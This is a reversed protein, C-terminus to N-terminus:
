PEIAAPERPEEAPRREEIPTAMVEALWGGSEPSHSNLDVVTLFSDPAELKGPENCNVVVIKERLNPSLGNLWRATQTGSAYFIAFPHKAIMTAAQSLNKPSLEMLRAKGQHRSRFHSFFGRDASLVLVEADEDLKPWRATKGKVGERFNKRMVERALTKLREKSELARKPAFGFPKISAKAALVRKVTEDLREMSIRGSKVAEVMAEFARKQNKPSGALLLLDNGALFARITREGIDDSIAGGSMELDDTLVLGQFGLRERLHDQIIMPSYTAPVGSPDVNPLSMHAMMVARPFSADFFEIFPVWDRSELEELTALKKVAGVHSDAVVGGHGPFHKATPLVGGKDLGRAYALALHAVRDPDNGFSRNAIFSSTSPDTLDLVPALNVNFGLAALLEASTKAYNEIFEPEARSLALASPQPTGIKVRTVSGGEQDIMLFLPVKLEKRAYAQAASNFRAVQTASRINRSFAILSGIKYRKLTQKLTSSFTTGGYTWIMTQGVKEELSMKEISQAKAAPSLVLALAFAVFSSFKFRGENSKRTKPISSSHAM